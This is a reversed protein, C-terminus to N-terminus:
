WAQRKNALFMNDPFNDKSVNCISSTLTKVLPIKEPWERKRVPMPKIMAQAIDNEFTAPQTYYWEFFGIKPIIIILCLLRMSFPLGKDEKSPDFPKTIAKGSDSDRLQAATIIITPHRRELLLRTHTALLSQSVM